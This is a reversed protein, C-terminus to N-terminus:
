ENPTIQSDEADAKSKNAKRKRVGYAFASAAGVLLVIALVIWPLLNEGTKAYDGDEPTAPPEGITVTQGEDDIDKHEAVLVNDKYLEEFAVLEAGDALKSADFKFEIDVSGSTNNPTFKVESTVPKDDIVLQKGTAKDMLWGKLTYEKGPVLNEYDVTDVVVADTSPLLYHDGDTKDTATTGISSSVVEVTQGKDTIDAHSAQIVDNAFMLEYIVLEKGDMGETNVPFTMDVSGDATNPTFNKQAFTLCNVIKANEALYESVVDANVNVDSVIRDTFGALPNEVGLRDTFEGVFDIFESTAGASGTATMAAFEDDSIGLLTALGHMFTALEGDSIEDAGEGSLLPMGTTKDMVIGAVTYEKGPILSEYRVTDIIKADKDAIVSQDLDFADYASTGIKPNVVEVLQNEDNIDAHVAVSKDKDFVEEFAVIQTGKELNYGDFVFEVEVEGNPTTPTFTAKAEVTNGHDDTLERETVNGNEDIVKEMLKGTATYEKGIVLNKYAITDVVRMGKDSVVNKDGDVGDVATTGIEPVITEVTQNSDTPDEHAAIVVDGRLVKEFVVIQTGPELMSADFVFVVDISGSASKPTFQTTVTIPNGDKDLLETAEVDGDEDITKVMLTGTATYEKNAVLNEYRVTDIITAETDNIIKHDGDADDTATTGIVPAIVHLTQESDNIEQHEAVVAGGKSLVEYVVIDKGKYDVLNVPIQVEVSGRDSTTEFTVQASAGEIAEGTTKDMLTATLTYTENAALEAYSVHDNIVAETDAVILKDGDSADTAHTGIYPLKEVDNVIDRMDFVYNQRNITFEKTVMVMGKNNDCELEELTYTDYPLAGMDDRAEGAGFWLGNEANYEGGDNGNTNQTHKNWDASTNVEGNEDTVVIHSEGTTKSTIKFPIGGLLKQDMGRVKIFKLDGRIVANKFAGGEAGEVTDSYHIMQHNESITFYRKEGDTLNYGKGAVIEQISYDGYPLTQDNTAAVGNEITLIKCVEGPQYEIGDVFAGKNNENVIAFQTGDLSAGGQPTLANTELDRKEIEIGGKKIPEPILPMNYTSVTPNTSGDGKVQRVVVSDYTVGDIEFSGTPLEYGEPAKTEQITYTGIPYCISGQSDHFFDDGSVKWSEIDDRNMNIFGKANTKMVWTRVPEVSTYDEDLTPYFKVTFEAGALTPAGAQAVNKEGNYTRDGDYKGLMIQVPDYQPEEMIVGPNEEADANVTSVKWRKVEVPYVTDSLAYGEPHKMEKVYYTTPDGNKKVPLADSVAYGNEDTTLVMQLNREAEADAKSLFVGYKAGELSYCENGDTIEKNASEKQLDIYGAINPIILTQKKGSYPKYVTAYHDIMYKTKDDIKAGTPSVNGGNAYAKAKAVLDKAAAYAKPVRSTNYKVPQDSVMWVALQTADHAEGNTLKHGAVNQIYPAGYWMVYSLAKRYWENPQESLKYWTGAGPGKHGPPGYCFAVEWNRESVSDGGSKKYDVWFKQGANTRQTSDNSKWAEFYLADDLNAYPDTEEPAIVTKLYQKLDDGYVKYTEELIGEGCASTWDSIYNNEEDEVFCSDVAYGNDADVRVTVDSGAAFTFEQPADAGAQVEQGNIYLSAHDPKSVVLTGNGEGFNSGDYDRAYAKTSLLASPLCLGITLIAAFLARCFRSERMKDILNPTYDQM